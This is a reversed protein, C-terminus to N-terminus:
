SGCLGNTMASNWASTRAGNQRYAPPGQRGAHTRASCGPPRVWSMSLVFVMSNWRIWIKVLEVEGDAPMDGPLQLCAAVKSARRAPVRILSLELTTEQASVRGARFVM